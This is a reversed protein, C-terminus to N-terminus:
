DYAFPVSPSAPVARPSAIERLLKERIGDAFEEFSAAHLAFNGEGQILVDRYWDALGSVDGISIGNIVFRPDRSNIVTDWQPGLLRDLRRDDGLENTTYYFQNQCVGDGSVDIVFRTGEFENNRLESMARGLANSMITNNAFPRGFFSVQNAFAICDEATRLHQWGFDAQQNTSSWALFLVAIGNGEAVLAQIAPDNFARVYGDLQLAWETDSVSESADVLLALELEVATRPPPPAAEREAIIRRIEALRAEAAAIEEPTLPAAPEEPPTPDERVMREPFTETFDPQAQSWAQGAPLLTAALLAATSLSLTRTLLSPM